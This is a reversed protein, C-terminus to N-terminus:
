GLGLEDRLEAIQVWLLELESMAQGATETRLEVQCSWAHWLYIETM